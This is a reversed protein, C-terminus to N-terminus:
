CEPLSVEPWDATSVTEAGSYVAKSIAVAGLASRHGLDPQNSAQALRRALRRCDKKRKMYFCKNYQIHQDQQPVRSPSEAAQGLM